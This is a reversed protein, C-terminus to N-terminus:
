DNVVHLRPAVNGVDMGVDDDVEVAMRWGGEMM